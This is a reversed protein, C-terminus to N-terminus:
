GGFQRDLREALFDQRRDNGTQSVHGEIAVFISIDLFDNKAQNPPNLRLPLLSKRVNHFYLMHELEFLHLILTKYALHGRGRHDAALLELECHAGFGVLGEFGLAIEEGGHFGALVRWEPGV